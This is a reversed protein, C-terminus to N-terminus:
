CGIRWSRCFFSIVANGADPGKMGAGGEVGEKLSQYESILAQARDKDSWFDNSSMLAELEAIRPNIPDPM